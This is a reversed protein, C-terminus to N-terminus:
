KSTAWGPWDVTPQRTGLQKLAAEVFSMDIFKDMNPVGGKLSGAKAYFEAQDKLDAVNLRGNLDINQPEADKWVKPDKVSLYQTLVGIAQSQMSLRAAGGLGSTLLTKALRIRTAANGGNKAVNERLLAIAKSTKGLAIYESTESQFKIIEPTRASHKKYAERFAEYEAATWRRKGSDM